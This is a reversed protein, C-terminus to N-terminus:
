TPNLRMSFYTSEIAVRSRTIGAHQRAILQSELNEGKVLVSAFEVGLSLELKSSTESSIAALLEHRHDFKRMGSKTQPYTIHSCYNERTVTETRIPTLRESFSKM